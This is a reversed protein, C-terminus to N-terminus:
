AHRRAPTPSATATADQRVSEFRADSSVPVGARADYAVLISLVLLGAALWEIYENM